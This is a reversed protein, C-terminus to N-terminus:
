AYQSLFSSLHGADANARALVAISIQQQLSSLNSAISASAESTDGIASASATLNNSLVNNNQLAYSLSSSQAGLSADTAGLSAQANAIQGEANTASAPNSLDINTIGLGTTTANAFTVDTTQGASAGSQITATPATSGAGAATAQVTASQGADSASVNGITLTTGDYTTSAGSAFTGVATTTQTTSDTYNVDVTGQANVTATFTGSTTAASASASSLVAGGGGVQDNNTITATAATAPTNGSTTGNLLQTGNFNTEGAVQNIEQTLQTAQAQLAANDSPSNFGNNAEIALNNVQSLDTQITSTAGQAVNIASSADTINLNAADAGQSQTTLFNYIAAGSPDSSTGTSFQTGSTEAAVDTLLQLQATLVSQLSYAPNASPIGVSM